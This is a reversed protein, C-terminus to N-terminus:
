LGRAVTSWRVAIAPPILCRAQNCCIWPFMLSPIEGHVLSKNLLKNIKAVNLPLNELSERERARARAADLERESARGGTSERESARENKRDRKM